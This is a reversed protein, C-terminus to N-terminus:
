KAFSNSLYDAFYSGEIVNGAVTAPPEAGLVVSQVKTASTSEPHSFTLKFYGANIVSNTKSEAYNIQDVVIEGSVNEHPSGGGETYLFDCAAFTEKGTKKVTFSLRSKQGGASKDLSITASHEGKKSAAVAVVEGEKSAAWGTNAWMTNKGQTVKVNSPTSCKTVDKNINASEQVQAPEPSGYSDDFARCGSILAVSLILTILVRTM